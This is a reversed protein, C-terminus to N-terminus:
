HWPTYGEDGDVGQWAPREITPGEGEVWRRRGDREFRDADWNLPDYDQVATQRRALTAGKVDYLQVALERFADAGHSTWDHLPEKSPTRLKDDWVSRYQRLANLGKECKVEDFVCRSLMNRVANIGDQRPLKSGARIPELGLGELTQKRTKASTMERTDVDHPLYHEAFQYRKALVDRAVDTLARGRAELYDIVRIERGVLQCFWVATADDIGLDWATHVQFTPDHPVATIRGAQELKALAKGYYSGIVAADFSCLYEQNFLAEGDEEGYDAIYERLEGDLQQRTFVGTEIANQRIGFWGPEDQSIKWTRYGHNKGRSTYIFLAWGGNELLIPRLYAWAAPNGIAWESFVLGIPPSGVLANYSDSGVVQWTSGNKFRIFMKQEDTTARLERPFAEDIRRIGTHPNVADWLAKRAQAYEPLCHWYTGVRQHAAVATWHLALDDKGWRRHCVAVARTGGHELYRWLDRQYSRPRWNNPLTVDPM